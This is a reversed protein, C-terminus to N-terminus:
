YQAIVDCKYSPYRFKGMSGESLFGGSTFLKFKVPDSSKDWNLGICMSIGPLVFWM